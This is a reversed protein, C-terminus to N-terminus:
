DAYHPYIKVLSRKYSYQHSIRGGLLSVLKVIHECVTEKYAPINDESYIEKRELHNLVFSHM